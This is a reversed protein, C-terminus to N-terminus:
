LVEDMEDLTEKLTAIIHNVEEIAEQVSAPAAPTRERLPQPPPTSQVPEPQVQSQAELAGPEDKAVDPQAPGDPRSEPSSRAPGRRGRGGRRGRRRPRPREASQAGTQSPESDM